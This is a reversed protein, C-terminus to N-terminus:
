MKLESSDEILGDRKVAMMMAEMEVSMDLKDSEFLNEYIKSTAAKVDTLYNVVNQTIEETATHSDELRDYKELVKGLTPLYYNLFQRTSPIKEPNDKLAQLIKDIIGCIENAKTRVPMTTIRMIKRRLNMLEDRGKALVEKQDDSLEKPGTGAAAKKKDDRSALVIGVIVIAILAGIIVAAVILITKLAVPMYRGLLILVVIVAILGLVGATGSSKNNM